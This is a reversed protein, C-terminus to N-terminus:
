EDRGARYTTYEKYTMMVTAGDVRVPICREDEVDTEGGDHDMPLGRRARREDGWQKLRGLLDGRCTKCIRLYYFGLNDVLLNTDTLDIFEPVAEELAYFCSMLLTRKDPGEAGCLQCKDADLGRYRAADAARRQERADAMKRLGALVGHDEFTM